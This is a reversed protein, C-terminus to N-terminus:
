HFRSSKLVLFGEMVAGFWALDYAWDALFTLLVSSTNFILATLMLFMWFIMLPFLLELCLSCMLMVVLLSNCLCTMTGVFLILWFFKMFSLPAWTAFKFLARLFILNSTVTLKTWESVDLMITTVLLTVLEDSKYAM